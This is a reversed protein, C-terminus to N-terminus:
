FTNQGTLLRMISIRKVRPFLLEWLSQFRSYIHALNNEHKEVWSSTRIIHWIADLWEPIQTSCFFSTREFLSLVYNIPLPLPITVTVFKGPFSSTNNYCVRGTIFHWPLLSEKNYFSIRAVSHWYDMHMYIWYRCSSWNTCFMLFIDINIHIHKLEFNNSRYNKLVNRNKRFKWLIKWFM